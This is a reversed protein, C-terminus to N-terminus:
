ETSKESALSSICTCGAWSWLESVQFTALHCFLQTHPSQTRLVFCNLIHLGSKFLLRMCSKEGTLAMMAVNLGRSLAYLCGLKLLHTKGAGPPGVILQSPAFVASHDVVAKVTEVLGELTKTQEAVSAPSQNVDATFEPEWKQDEKTELKPFILQKRDNEDTSDQIGPTGTTLAKILQLRQAKIAEKEKDVFDARLDKWLMLPYDAVVVQDEKFFTLLVDRAERAIELFPCQTLAQFFHQEHFWRNNLAIGQRALERQKDSDTPFSTDDPERLLGATVFARRM